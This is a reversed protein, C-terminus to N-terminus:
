APVSGPAISGGNRLRTRSMAGSGADPAAFRRPCCPSSRTAPVRAHAARAPDLEVECRLRHRDGSRDRPVESSAQDEPDVELGVVGPDGRGFGAREDVPDARARDGRESIPLSASSYGAKAQYM